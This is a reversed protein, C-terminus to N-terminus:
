APTSAIGTRRSGGAARGARRVDLAIHSPGAKLYPRPRAARRPRPRQNGLHYHWSQLSLSRCYRLIIRCFYFPPSCYALNQHYQVLRYPDSSQHPVRTTCDTCRETRPSGDRDRARGPGPLDLARRHSQTDANPGPDLTRPGHGPDRGPGHNPGLVLVHNTTTVFSPCRSLFSTFSIGAPSPVPGIPM